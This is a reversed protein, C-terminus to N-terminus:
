PFSPLTFYYLWEQRECLESSALCIHNEKVMPIVSTYSGGYSAKPCKWNLLPFHNGAQAHSRTDWFAFAVTEVLQMKSQNQAIGEM